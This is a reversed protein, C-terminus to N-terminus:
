GRRHSTKRGAATRYATAHNKVTLPRSLSATFLAQVAADARDLNLDDDAVDITGVVSRVPVPTGLRGARAEAILADVTASLNRGYSRGKLWLLNGEEITLSVPKKPM